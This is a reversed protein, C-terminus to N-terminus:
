RRRELLKRIRVLEEVARGSDGFLPRGRVRKLVEERVERFDSLHIFSAEARRAKPGGGGGLQGTYGATYIDVSGIGLRRSLPGQVVDVSMVRAYPVTHEMKWWVGKRVRVEEEALEYRLSSYYRPIWYLVLAAALLIPVFYFSSFLLLHLPTGYRLILLSCGLGLLLLPLLVLLLYLHYLRKMNPHPGFERGKM